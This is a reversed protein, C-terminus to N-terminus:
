RRMVKKYSGHIPTLVIGKHNKSVTKGSLDYMADGTNPLNAEVTKVSSYKDSKKLTIHCPKPSTYTVLKMSTATLEEIKFQMGLADFHLKDNNTISFSPFIFDGAGYRVDYLNEFFGVGGGFNDNDKVNEIEVGNWIHYTAKDESDSDYSYVDGFYVGTFSTFDPCIAGESEMVEWYGLLQTEDYSVANCVAASLVAALTLIIKKM